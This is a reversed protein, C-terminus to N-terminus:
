PWEANTKLRMIPKSVLELCKPCSSSSYISRLSLPFLKNATFAPIICFHVYLLHVTIIISLLFENLALTVCTMGNREVEGGICTHVCAWVCVYVCVYICDFIYM